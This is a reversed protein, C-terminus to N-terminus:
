VNNPSPPSTSNCARCPPSRLAQANEAGGRRLLGPVSTAAPRQRRHRCAATRTWDGPRNPTLPLAQRLNASGFYQGGAVGVERWDVSLWGKGAQGKNDPEDFGFRPETMQEELVFYFNEMYRLDDKPNAIAPDRDPSIDFGLYTIDKGLHGKLVPMEMKNPEMETDPQDPPTPPVSGGPRAQGALKPYAYISLTPFRELLQGRILLVLMAKSGRQEGLQAATLWYHIPEIDANADLRQWFNRFPTGRQDTPFGQWLLERGMEHNAGLLLAEVFRSNTQVAM